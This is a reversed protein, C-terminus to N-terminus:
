AALWPQPPWRLMDAVFSRALLTPELQERQPSFVSLVARLLLEIAVLGPLIGILVALRVPWVSAESAFLLCLAGLVLSIIAM